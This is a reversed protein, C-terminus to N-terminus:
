GHSMARTATLVRTEANQLPPLHMQLLHRLRPPHHQLQQPLHASITVYGLLIKLFVFVAAVICFELRDLRLTDMDVGRM